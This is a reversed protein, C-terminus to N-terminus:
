NMQKISCYSFTIIRSNPIALEFIEKFYVSASILRNDKRLERIFTLPNFISSNDFYFTSIIKRISTIIAHISQTTKRSRFIHNSPFFMAYYHRLKSVLFKHSKSFSFLCEVFFVCSIVVVASVRFYVTFFDKNPIFINDKKRSLNVIFEIKKM